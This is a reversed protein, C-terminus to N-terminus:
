GAGNNKEYKKHVSNAYQLHSCFTTIYPNKKLFKNTLYSCCNIWLENKTFDFIQLWYKDL